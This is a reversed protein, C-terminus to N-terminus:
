KYKKFDEDVLQLMYRELAYQLGCNRLNTQMQYMEYESDPMANMWYGLHLTEFVEEYTATKRYYDLYGPNDKKSKELYDFKELLQEYSAQCWKRAIKDFIAIEPVWADWDYDQDCSNQFHVNYPFLADIAPYGNSDLCMGLLNYKEWYVFNFTFLHQVWLDGYRRIEKECAEQTPQRFMMCTYRSNYVFSKAEEYDMFSDAAKQMIDLAEVKSNVVAFKLNFSYSM